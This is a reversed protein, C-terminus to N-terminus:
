CFEISIFYTPCNLLDKPFSAIARLQVNQALFEIFNLHIYDFEVLM